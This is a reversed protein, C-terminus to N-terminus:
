HRVIGDVNITVDLVTSIKLKEFFYIALTNCPKKNMKHFLLFLCTYSCCFLHKRVGTVLTQALQLIQKDLSNKNRHTMM